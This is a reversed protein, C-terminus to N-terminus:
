SKSFILIKFDQIFIEFSSSLFNLSLNNQFVGTYKQAECNRGQIKEKESCNM